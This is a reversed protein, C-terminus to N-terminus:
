CIKDDYDAIFITNSRSLYYSLINFTCVFGFFPLSLGPELSKVNIYENVKEKKINLTLAM